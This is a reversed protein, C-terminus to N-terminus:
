GLPAPVLDPLPLPLSPLSPAETLPLATPSFPRDGPVLSVDGVSGNRSAYALAQAIDAVGNSSSPAMLSSLSGFARGEADVYGSGSDGPVGPPITAVVHTWPDPQGLSVGQKNPAVGIQNPQYSFVREGNKTGDTDLATPGGVGPITPSTRAADEPALAVLAFDNESCLAPDTEGTAQMAGWSDYALTGRYTRGDRGHIGVAAGDDMVPETCGDVSSGADATGFCHAATGLYVTDGGTFVFNATCLEAGDGVPTALEVGPGIAAATAPAFAAQPAASATMPALLAATAALGVAIGAGALRRVTRPARTM